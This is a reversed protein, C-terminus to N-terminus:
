RIEALGIHIGVPTIDALAYCGSYLAGPNAIYLGGEYRSVPSHTHGFLAIDASKARAADIFIETGRKVYYTHGHAIFVRKGATHFIDETPSLSDYDNNGRVARVRLSPFEATVRELDRAGDGLFVLMDAESHMQILRRLAYANGHSDSVILLRM